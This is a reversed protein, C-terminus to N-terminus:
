AAKEQAQELWWWVPMAEFGLGRATSVECRAGRSAEWGYLTALGDCDVLMKIDARMHTLWDADPDVGNTFPSVPMYGAARLSAEARDFAPRNLDPVGTIPGSIYIRKAM